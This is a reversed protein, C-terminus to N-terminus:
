VGALESIDRDCIQAVELATQSLSQFADALKPDAM